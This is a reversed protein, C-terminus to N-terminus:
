LKVSLIILRRVKSTTRLNIERLVIREKITVEHSVFNGVSM